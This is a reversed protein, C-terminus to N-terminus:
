CVIIDDKEAFATLVETQKVSPMLFVLQTESHRSNILLLVSKKEL